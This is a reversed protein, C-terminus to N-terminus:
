IIVYLSSFGGEPRNKQRKSHKNEAKKFAHKSYKSTIIVFLSNYGRM